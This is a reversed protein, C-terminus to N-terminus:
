ESKAFIDNNQKEKNKATIYKIYYDELTKHPGELNMRGRNRANDRRVTYMAYFDRYDLGADVKVHQGLFTSVEDRSIAPIGKTKLIEKLKIIQEHSIGFLFEEMAQSVGPQSMESKIFGIWQEDMQMSMLILESTGMMTGFAPALMRRALWVSQLVPAVSEITQDNRHEWLMLLSMCWERRYEMPATQDNILNLYVDEAMLNFMMTITELKLAATLKSPAELSESLKSLSSFTHTKAVIFGKGLIVKSPLAISTDGQNQHKILSDILLQPTRMGGVLDHRELLSPFAAIAVALEKLDKIRESIIEYRDPAKEKIIDIIEKYLIEQKPTLLVIGKEEDRTLPSEQQSDYFESIDVQTFQVDVKKNEEAM